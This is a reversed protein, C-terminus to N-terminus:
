QNQSARQIAELFRQRIVERRQESPMTELDEENPSPSETSPQELASEASTAELVTLIESANGGSSKKTSASQDRSLRPSSQAALDIDTAGVGEFSEIISARIGEPYLDLLRATTIAASQGLRPHESALNSPLSSAEVNTPENTASASLNVRENSTIFPAAGESGSSMVDGSSLSAITSSTGGQGSPLLLMGAGVGLGVLLVFAGIFLPLKKEAGSTGPDGDLQSPHSLTEEEIDSEVPQEIESSKSQEARIQSLVGRIESPASGFGITKQISQGVQIRAVHDNGIWNEPRNSLFPVVLLATKIRAFAVLTEAFREKWQSSIPDFPDNLVLVKQPQFTAGLLRLRREECATLSSCPRSAVDDLGASSLASVIAGEPAGSDALFSEPTQASQGSVFREGFGILNHDSPNFTQDDLSLSFREQGSIGALARVYPALDSPSAARFVSVQGAHCSIVGLLEGTSSLHKIQLLELTM